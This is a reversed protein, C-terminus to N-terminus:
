GAKPQGVNLARRDSCQTLQDLDNVAQNVEKLGTSQEQASDAINGIVENIEAVEGVIRKLVRGTEAVMKVGDSVHSSSSLILGQIEKAADASRQALTRVEQAVVAFGRGADGARSAEVGANLALLNTQFAIENIIGIIQSIKESSDEIQAMAALSGDVVDTSQRADATATEVILRARAAGDATRQLNIAIENLAAATEELSVAQRETRSSLEAAASSIESSGHRINRTSGVILEITQNLAGVANNFDTKLKEYERPFAVDIECQLDGAALQALCTGIRDLVFELERAADSTQIANREREQETLKRQDRADQEAQIKAAANQRFITVSKAIGGLEDTRKNESAPLEFNLDGEALASIARHISSLRRLLSNGVYGWAIAISVVVSFIALLALYFRAAAVTLGASAINSASAAQASKVLEEIDTSLEVVKQQNVFLAEKLDKGISIEENRITFISRDGRGPALLRHVASKIDEVQLEPPLAGIASEISQASSKFRGSMLKTETVARASSLEAYLASISNAESTMQWTNKVQLFKEDSHLSASPDLPTSSDAASITQLLFELDAASSDAIPGMSSTAAAYASRADSVKRLREGQLGLQIKKLEVLHHTNTELDDFSERITKLTAQDIGSDVLARLTGDLRERQAPPIADAGTLSEPDEAAAIVPVRAALESAFRALALSGQLQPLSEVQLEHFGADVSKFALLSVCSAAVTLLTVVAFSAIM